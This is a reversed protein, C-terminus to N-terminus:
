FKPTPEEYLSRISAPGTIMKYFDYDRDPFDNAKIYQFHLRFFNMRIKKYFEPRILERFRIQVVRHARIDDRGLQVGTGKIPDFNFASIVDKRSQLDLWFIDPSIALRRIHDRLWGADNHCAMCPLISGVTVLTVMRKKGLDPNEALARGTAELMNVAGFSHGMLLIEDADSNKETQLIKETFGSILDTMDTRRSRVHQLGTIYADLMHQAYFNRWHEFACIGWFIAVAILGGLAWFLWSYQGAPLLFSSATFGIGAAVIAYLTLAVYGYTVQAGFRWSAKFMRYWLGSVLFDFFSYYLLCMRRFLSRNADSKIIHDWRLQTFETVVSQNKNRFTWTASSRDNSMQMDSLNVDAGSIKRYRSLERSFMNHYWAPGAPTYCGVYLIKRKRIM